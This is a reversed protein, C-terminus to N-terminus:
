CNHSRPQILLIYLLYIRMCLSLLNNKSQERALKDAEADTVPLKAKMFGKQARSWTAEIQTIEHQKSKLEKDKVMNAADKGFALDSSSKLM